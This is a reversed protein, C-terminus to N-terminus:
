SVRDGSAEMYLLLKELAFALRKEYRDYSQSFTVFKREMSEKFIRMDIEADDTLLEERIERNIIIKHFYMVWEKIQDNVTTDEFLESFNSHIFKESQTHKRKEEEIFSRKM